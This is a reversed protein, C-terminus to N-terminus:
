RRVATPRGRKSGSSQRPPVTLRVFLSEHLCSCGRLGGFVLPWTRGRLTAGPPDSTFSGWGALLSSVNTDGVPARTSPARTVSTM